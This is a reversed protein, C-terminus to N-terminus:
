LLHYSWVLWLASANIAILVCVAAVGIAAALLTVLIVIIREITNQFANILDYALKVGILGWGLIPARNLPSSELMDELFCLVAYVLRDITKNVLDYVLKGAHFVVFLGSLAVLSIAILVDLVLILILILIVLWEPLM